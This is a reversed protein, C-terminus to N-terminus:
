TDPFMPLQDRRVTHRPRGKQRLAKIVDDNELDEARIELDELALEFQDPDSKESRRGFAAQKFAALPKELHAIREDKRRDRADAATLMAKLAAIEELLDTTKPM